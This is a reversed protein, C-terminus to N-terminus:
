YISLETRRNLARGEETDNSARPKISGYGKYKLREAKIGNKILYEYVSKARKESLSLNYQDNGTNDTHGSIEVNIDPHENLFAIIKNLEVISTTKLKFSDVEFFINPLVIYSGKKVPKLYIDNIIGEEITEAKINQSYFLYKNSTIYLGYEEKQPLCLIFEGTLSDSQTSFIVKQNQLNIIECTAKVPKYSKEDFVKGKIYIMKEPQLPEPLDFRYIDILGYGGKRNSCIYAHKGSASVVLGIDNQPTNIPYGLNKPSTWKGNEDKQTVFIDFGGVGKHGNSCFYLTKGDPHIFPSTEAWPTNITTDLIQPRSWSGDANRYSVYIDSNGYGDPRESAFYLEKVMPLFVQNHNGHQLILTLLSKTYEM